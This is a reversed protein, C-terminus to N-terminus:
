PILIVVMDSIDKLGQQNFFYYPNLLCTSIWHLVGMNEKSPCQMELAEKLNIYLWRSPKLVSDSM